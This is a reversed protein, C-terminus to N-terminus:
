LQVSVSCTVCVCVCVCVRVCVCACVCVCVRVFMMGQCVKNSDASLTFGAPCVCAVGDESPLCGHSCGLKQCLGATFCVWM